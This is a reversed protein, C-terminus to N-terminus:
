ENFYQNKCDLSLLTENCNELVLVRYSNESDLYPFFYNLTIFTFIIVKFFIPSKFKDLILLFGLLLLPYILFKSDDFLFGIFLLIIFKDLKATFVDKSIFIFLSVIVIITFHQSYRMWKTGSMGWFWLFPVAVSGFIPLALNNFINDITERNKLILISFVIPFIFVRLRDYNNWNAYESNNLKETFTSNNSSEVFDLGSSQHSIILEFQSILYDFVTGTKYNISVLLLWVFLPISFFCLDILNQKFSKIKLVKFIFFGIFSLSTLIKGFFISFGILLYSLKSSKQFVFCSNVFIIVSAFEGLSYLAGQWWPILLFLPFLILLMFNIDWKYYFKYFALFLIQIFVIWYFNAIRAYTFNTFYEWAISSGVASIPGSTLYISYSGGWDPGANFDLNNFFQVNSTLSIYEDVFSKLRQSKMSIYNFILLQQYFLFSVFLTINIKKNKGLKNFLHKLNTFKSMSEKIKPLFKYILTTLLITIVVISFYDIKSPIETTWGGNIYHACELVSRVLVSNGEIDFLTIPDFGVETEFIFNPDDIIKDLANRSPTDTCVSKIRDEDM